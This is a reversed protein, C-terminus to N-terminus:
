ENCLVDKAIIVEDGNVEFLRAFLRQRAKGWANGVIRRYGMINMIECLDTKFERLTATKVRPDSYVMDVFLGDSAPSVMMWNEGHNAIFVRVERIEIARDLAAVRESVDFGFRKDNLLDLRARSWWQNLAEDPLM